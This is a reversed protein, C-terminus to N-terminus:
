DKNYLVITSGPILIGIGIITEGLASFLGIWYGISHFHDISPLLLQTLDMTNITEWSTQTISDHEPEFNYM